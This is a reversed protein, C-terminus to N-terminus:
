TKNFGSSGTQRKFESGFGTSRKGKKKEKKFGTAGLSDTVSQAMIDKELRHPMCDAVKVILVDRRKTPDLSRRIRGLNKKITDADDIDGFEENQAM